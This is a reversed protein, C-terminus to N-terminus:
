IFFLWQPRLAKRLTKCCLLGLFIYHTFVSCPTLTLCVRVCAGLGIRVCKSLENLKEDIIKSYYYSKMLKSGSFRDKGFSHISGYAQCKKPNLWCFFQRYTTFTTTELKAIKVLLLIVAVYQL